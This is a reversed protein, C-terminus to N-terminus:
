QSWVRWQQSALCGGWGVPPTPAARHTCSRSLRRLASSVSVAVALSARSMHARRRWEPTGAEMRTCGQSWRRSAAPPECSVPSCFPQCLAPVFQHGDVEWTEKERPRCPCMERRRVRAQESSCVPLLTKSAGHARDWGVEGPAANLEAGFPSLPTSPEPSPSTGSLDLPGQTHTHTHGATEVVDAQPCLVPIRHFSGRPCVPAVTGRALVGILKPMHPKLALQANFTCM